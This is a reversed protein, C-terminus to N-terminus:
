IRSSYDIERGIIEMGHGIDLAQIGRQAYEYAIVKSAPGIALLITCTDTGHLKLHKDIESMLLMKKEYANQPPATVFTATKFSNKLYSRLASDLVDANAVCIINKQKLLPAVKTDFNGKHYFYVPCFYQMDLKFRLRFFVRLLRWIRLRNSSKLNRDTESLAFTGIGIIYPSTPQYKSIIQRLDRSLKQSKKQFYIDRGTMLMAEGDGLRILSIGNAIKELLIEETYENVHAPTTGTIFSVGYAFLVRPDYM